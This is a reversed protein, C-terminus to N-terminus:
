RRERRFLVGGLALWGLGFLVGFFTHVLRMGDAGGSETLYHAWGSAGIVLPLTRSLGDGEGSLSATVGVITLGSFLLPAWEIPWPMLLGFAQIDQRGVVYVDHWVLAGEIGRVVGVAAGTLALGFGTTAVLETLLGVRGAGRAHLGALGMLGVFFLAPVSVALVAVILALYAQYPDGHAYRDGGPHGGAHLYGWAVFLVGASAAAVGCARLLASPLKRNRRHRATLGVPCM